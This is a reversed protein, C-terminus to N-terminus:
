MYSALKKIINKLEKNEVKLKYYEKEYNIVLPKSILCNAKGATCENDKNHQCTSTYCVKENQEKEIAYELQEEAYNLTKIIRDVCNVHSDGFYCEGNTESPCKINICKM